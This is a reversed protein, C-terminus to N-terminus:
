MSNTRHVKLGNAIAADAVFTDHGAPTLKGQSGTELEYSMTLM